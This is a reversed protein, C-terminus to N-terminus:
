PQGDDEVELGMARLLESAKAPDDLLERCRRFLTAGDLEEGSLEALHQVVRMLEGVPARPPRRDRERRPKPAQRQGGVARPAASASGERRSRPPAEREEPATWRGGADDQASWAPGRPAREGRPAEPRAWDGPPRRSVRLARGDRTAPDIPAWRLGVESPLLAMAWLHDPATLEGGEWVWGSAIAAPVGARRLMECAMAGLEYCVGRGLYRGGRGETAHLAAIHVNPRGRTVRRLWRAAAADELYSPDYAYRRRVFERVAVAKELAPLAAVRLRECEALAEDPLEEDPVTPALLPRLAGEAGAPAGIVGGGVHEPAEDLVVRCAVEGPGRLAVFTRGARGPVVRAGVDAASSVAVLRGFLPTPFANDGRPLRGTLAVEYSGARAPAFGEAVLRATPRDRAPLWRQTAPDFRAGLALPAYRHPFPLASPAFALGYEPAVAREISFTGDSDLQSGIAERGEFWRGHDPARFPTGEDRADARGADDPRRTASPEPAPARDDGDDDFFWGRVRDRWRREGGKPPAPPRPPAPAGLAEMLVGGLAERQGPGTPKRVTPMLDPVGLEALWDAAVEDDEALDVLLLPFGKARAVNALEVPRPLALGPADSMVVTARGDPGRAVLPLREVTRRGRRALLGLCRPLRALVAPDAAVLGGAGLEELRAGVAALYRAVESPGVREHFGLATALAPLRLGDRSGTVLDGVLEPAPTVVLGSAPRWAGDDDRLRPAAFTERLDAEAARDRSLAGGAVARDLWLLATMTAGRARITRLVDAVRAEAARRFPLRAILAEPLTLAVEAHPLAAPDEGLLDLVDDDPWYLDAPARRVGGRDPIWAARELDLGAVAEPADMALGGLYRALALTAELGPELGEGSTTLAEIRAAPLARAAGIRTLLGVLAPEDYAPATAPPPDVLFAALLGREVATPALLRRVQEWEGGREVAVRLRDLKHNKVSWDFATADEAATEAPWCGAMARLVAASRAVDGDAEAGRHADELLSMLQRRRGRELQVAQRLWARLVAPVEAAPRWAALGIEAPLDAGADDGLLLERPARFGGAETPLLPANGLTGLAQADGELAPAAGLLWRYFAVRASAESLAAPGREEGSERAAAALADILRAPPLEPVVVREGDNALAAWAPEALAARLPLGASLAVP